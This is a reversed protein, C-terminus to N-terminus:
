AAAATIQDEHQVEHSLTLDAAARNIRSDQLAKMYNSALLAANRGAIAAMEMASAANEMAPPYYLGPGFEFPPFNEPPDFVPYALWPKLAAVEYGADFLMSLWARPLPAGSFLKYLGRRFSVPPGDFPPSAQGIRALASFPVQVGGDDTLLIEHYPMGESYPLGFFTPRPVGRIITVVVQKYERRPIRPLTIGEFSINSLQLPVAVVVVDYPEIQADNETPANKADTFSLSYRGDPQLIVKTVAQGLHLSANVTTIVKFPLAQNGGQVRLVRGDVAPLLSVLGALANLDLNRQNYNTGSAAAVFEDAFLSEGIEDHIYQQFPIQTLNFLGVQRLLEHPRSFAQGADQLVYIKKFHEFMDLTARKYRWFAFGYRWLLKFLTILRWSSEQFVLSRGDYLALLSSGSPAPKLLELGARRSMEAVLFNDEYIISAGLEIVQGDLM